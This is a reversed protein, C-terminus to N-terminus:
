QSWKNCSPFRVFRLRTWIQCLTFLKFTSRKNM